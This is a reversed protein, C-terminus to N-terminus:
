KWSIRFTKFRFAFNERSDGAVGGSLVFCTVGVCLERHLRFDKKKWGWTGFPLFRGCQQQSDSDGLDWVFCCRRGCVSIIEMWEPKETEITRDYRVSHVGPELLFFFSEVRPSRGTSQNTVTRGGCCFVTATKIFFSNEVKWVRKGMAQGVSSFQAPHLRPHFLVNWYLGFTYGKEPSEDVGWGLFAARTTDCHVTDLKPNDGYSLTKSFVLFFMKPSRQFFNFQVKHFKVLYM